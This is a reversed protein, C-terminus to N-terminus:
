TENGECGAKTGENGLHFDRRIFRYWHEFVRSGWRALIVRRDVAESLDDEYHVVMVPYDAAIFSRCRVEGLPGKAHWSAQGDSLSLRGEFDSLYMWDFAPLGPEIILQGCSRLSTFRESKDPNKKDEWPDFVGPPADDWTNSKNIQFFLKDPPTWAMAGLDGNGIPFGEYGDVAPSLYLLDHQSLFAQWDVSLDKGDFAITNTNQGTSDSVAVTPDQAMVGALPLSITLILLNRMLKEKSNIFKYM